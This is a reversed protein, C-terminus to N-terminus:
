GNHETIKLHKKIIRWCNWKIISQELLLSLTVNNECCQKPPLSYMTFLPPGDMHFCQPQQMVTTRFVQTKNSHNVTEQITTWNLPLQFLSHTFKSAVKVYKFTKAIRKAEKNYEHNIMDAIKTTLNYQMVSSRKWSM